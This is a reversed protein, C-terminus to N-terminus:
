REVAWEPRTGTTAEIYEVYLRLARAKAARRTRHHQERTLTWETVKGKGSRAGKGTPRYIASGYKGDGFTETTYIFTWGDPTEWYRYRPQRTAFLARITPDANLRATIEAAIRREGTTMM